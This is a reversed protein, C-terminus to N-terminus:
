QCKKDELSELFRHTIAAIKKKKKNLYKVNDKIVSIVVDDLSMSFLDKYVEETIHERGPEIKDAVYLVKGLDCLGPMGFTHFRISDLIDKDEVGFDNQLMSAAARGHLLSPKEQELESVPMGDKSVFSLILRDNMEKCMDHAIGAFYGRAPDLGYMCCMRHATEATRVSHEYRSQSLVGLAYKRVRDTLKEM